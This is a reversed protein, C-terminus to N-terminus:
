VTGDHFTGSFFFGFCCAPSWFPWTFCHPDWTRASSAWGRPVENWKKQEGQPYPPCCGQPPCTGSFFFCRKMRIKELSFVDNLKLLGCERRNKILSAISYTRNSQHYNDWKGPRVVLWLAFIEGMRGSWSAFTWCFIFIHKCVSQPCCILQETNM